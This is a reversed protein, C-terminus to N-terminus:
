SWDSGETDKLEFFSRGCSAGCASAKADVVSARSMTTNAMMVVSLTLDSGGEQEARSRWPTQMGGAFNPSTLVARSENIIKRKNTIYKIREHEARNQIQQM